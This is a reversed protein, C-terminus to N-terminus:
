WSTYLLQQVALTCILQVALGVRLWRTPLLAVAVTLWPVFPVWIRETEAKSMRSADALAVVLLTSLSLLVLVRVEQPVGAGRRLLGRAGGRVRGLAVALGAPVLLGTIVVLCALDGWTWYWAPRDAAIGDWYRDTLVPYAQWWSFGALAFGLVVALAALATPVLPRWSGAAVLVALAVLGMLPMGYSMMVGCGLLLGALLSWGLHVRVAAGRAAAAGALALCAIGWAMVTGIVADASVAVFVAVPSLLLFPAARRAADQAGLARLAVLAAVPLSAGVVTVVLGAALDGGLGLHVLGVFFLLMLPPHGAVHTPWNEPAASYPIRAVYEHLLAGVDTVARATPLYEDSSGLVRSLGSTGDVLALSLCWALSLVYGVVLLRSWSARRCWGPLWVWGLVALAIAPLTGPGLLKPDWWGHLPTILPEDVASRSARTAVDWDLLHPLSFAAALLLVAM